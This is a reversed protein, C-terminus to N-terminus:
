VTAINAAPCSPLAQVSIRLSRQEAGVPRPHGLSGAQGQLVMCSCKCFAAPDTQTAIPSHGHFELAVETRVAPTRDM